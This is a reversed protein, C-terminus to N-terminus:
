EDKRLQKEITKFLSILSQKVISKNEDKELRKLVSRVYLLMNTAEIDNLVIVQM